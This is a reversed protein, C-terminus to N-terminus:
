PSLVTAVVALLAIFGVMAGVVIALGKIGSVAAGGMRGKVVQGAPRNVSRRLSRPGARYRRNLNPAGAGTPVAGGCM